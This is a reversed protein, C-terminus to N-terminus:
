VGRQYVDKFRNNNKQILDSKNNLKEGFCIKLQFFICAIKWNEASKQFALKHLM